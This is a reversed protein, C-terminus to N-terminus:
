AHSLTSFDLTDYPPPDDFGDNWREYPCDDDQNSTRSSEPLFAHVPRVECLSTTAETNVTDNVPRTDQNTNRQGATLM